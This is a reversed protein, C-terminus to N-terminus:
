LSAEDLCIGLYCYCCYNLIKVCAYLLGLHLVVVVDLILLLYVKKYGSTNPIIIAAYEKNSLPKGKSKRKDKIRRAIDLSISFKRGFSKKVSDSGTETENAKAERILRKLVYQSIGYVAGFVNKCVLFKEKSKTELYYDLKIRKVGKKVGIAKQLTMENKLIKRVDNEIDVRKKLLYASRIDKIVNYAPLINEFVNDQDNLIYDGKKQECISKLCSIGGDLHNCCSCIRFSSVVGVSEEEQKGATLVLNLINTRSYFSKSIFRFDTLNVYAQKRKKDLASSMSQYSGDSKLTSLRKKRNDIKIDTEVSACLSPNEIAEDLFSSSKDQSIDNSNNHNHKSSLTKFGESWKSKKKKKSSSNTIVNDNNNSSFMEQRPNKNESVIKRPTLSGISSLFSTFSDEPFSMMKSHVGSM